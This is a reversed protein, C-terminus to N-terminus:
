WLLRFWEPLNPEPKVDNFNEALYAFLVNLEDPSLRPVRIRHIRKISEWRGLAKQGTVIRVFTHCVICNELVLDKGQGPPFIADVNVRRVNDGSIPTVPTPFLMPIGVPTITPLRTPTPTPIQTPALTPAVMPATTPPVSTPVVTPVAPAACATALVFVVWVVLVFLLTYSGRIV